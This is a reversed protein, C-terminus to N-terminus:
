SISFIIFFSSVVDFDWLKLCNVILNLFVICQNTAVLVHKISHYISRLHLYHTFSGKCIKSLFMTQVFYIVIVNHLFADNFVLNSNLSLVILHYMRSFSTLIERYMEKKKKKEEDNRIRKKIHWFSMSAYQM